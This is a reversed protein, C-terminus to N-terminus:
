RGFKGLADRGSDADWLSDQHMKIIQLLLGRGLQDGHGLLESDLARRGQALLLQHERDELDAGLAAVFDHALPRDLDELVSEAEKAGGIGVIEGAGVVDVDRRVLDPLETEPGAVRDLALNAAGLFALAIERQDPDALDIEVVGVGNPM